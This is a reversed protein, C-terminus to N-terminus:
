AAPRGSLEASVVVIGEGHMAERCYEVVKNRTGASLILLNTM